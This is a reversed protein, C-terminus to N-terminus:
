VTEESYQDLARENVRVGLGPQNILAAFGATATEGYGSLLEARM